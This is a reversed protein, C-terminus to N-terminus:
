LVRTRQRIVRFVLALLFSLLMSLWGLLSLDIFFSSVLLIVVILISTWEFGASSFPVGYWRASLYYALTLGIIAPYVASLLTLWRQLSQAIGLVALLSGLIGAIVIGHWHKIGFIHSFALGPTYIAIAADTNTFVNFINGFLSLALTGILAAMQLTHFNHFLFLGLAGILLGPFFVGTTVSFLIDKKTKVQSLFDPSVSTFSILSAFVVGIGWFVSKTTEPKYYMVSDFSTSSGKAIFLYIILTLSSATIIAKVISLNHLSLSAM